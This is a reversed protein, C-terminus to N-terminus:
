IKVGLSALKLQLMSKSQTGDDLMAYAARYAAGADDNKGLLWLADGTLEQKTAGDRMAGILKQAEDVQGAAMYAHALRTDTLTILDGSALGRADKLLAVAQEHAGKDSQARAEKILASWGYYGGHERAFTKVADLNNLDLLSYADAAKTDIKGHKQYFQTGFYAALAVLIAGAAWTFYPKPNEVQM